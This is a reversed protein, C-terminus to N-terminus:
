VMPEVLTVYHGSLRGREMSICISGYTGAKALDAVVCAQTIPRRLNM